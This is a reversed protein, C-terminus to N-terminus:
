QSNTLENVFAKVRGFDRELAQHTTEIQIWNDVILAQQFKDSLEAMEFVGMGAATGKLEHVMEVVMRGNKAEGLISIQPYDNFTLHLALRNIDDDEGLLVKIHACDAM